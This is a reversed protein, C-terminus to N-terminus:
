FRPDFDTYLDVKDISVLAQQPSIDSGSFPLIQVELKDLSISGQELKSRIPDTINVTFEREGCVEPSCGFLSITGAFHPDTTPTIDSLYPCSVFVKLLAGDSGPQPKVGTFRAYVKGTDLALAKDGGPLARMSLRQQMVADTASTADLDITTIRRPFALESVDSSALLGLSRSTNQAKIGREAAFDQIGKQSDLIQKNLQMVENSQTEPELIDYSYGYNELNFTEDVSPTVAAGSADHFIGSYVKTLDHMAAKQSELSIASNAWIRDVNAHHLWFIPDLPSLGSSFHGHDTGLGWIPNGGVVVHATGHPGETLETLLSFNSANEMDDMASNSFSGAAPGDLLGFDVRAFRYPVTNIPGWGMANYIGSDSWAEVNLPGNEFFQAPMRGNNDRWDWYPLAFNEDGIMEGCIKEFFHLYPRHWSFFEISGHECFDAHVRAQAIWSRPDDEPLNHMAKIVQGYAVFFPDDAALTSLKRRIRKGNIVPTGSTVQAKLIAPAALAFFGAGASSLLQRRTIM